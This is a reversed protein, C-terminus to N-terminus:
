TSFTKRLTNNLKMNKEYYRKIVKKTKKTSNDETEHYPPLEAGKANPFNTMTYKPNTYGSDKDTASPIFAWDETVMSQVMEHFMTRADAVELTKSCEPCISHSVDGPKFAPGKKEGMEKGCWACKIKATHEQPEKNKEKKNDM